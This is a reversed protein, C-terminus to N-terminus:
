VWRNRNGALPLVVPELLSLRACALRATCPRDFPRALPRRWPVAQTPFSSM